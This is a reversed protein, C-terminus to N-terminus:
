PTNGKGLNWGECEDGDEGEGERRTWTNSSWSRIHNSRPFTGHEYTETTKRMTSVDQNDGPERINTYTHLNTNDNLGLAGERRSTHGLHGWQRSL